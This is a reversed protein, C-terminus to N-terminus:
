SGLLRVVSSRLFFCVAALFRPFDVPHAVVASADFFRGEFFRLAAFLADAVEFISLHLETHAVMRIVPCHGNFPEGFSLIRESDLM